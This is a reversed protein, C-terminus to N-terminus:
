QQSSKTQSTYVERYIENTKLLEEHTGVANIGGDDMVIIKDANEISSIRQAIIIKTTDPIEEAFAKRILADTKTDVASTSDDLILIKPKKLLARAICLRQKQGGSVNTGGQEIYTDYGKPFTSVFSDAQALKCVNVIEEDTANENGWRLNEKITGSFLVNKQLVVAVSDRLAEIDYDKVDLGGVTLKGKTVDYLRPILNVLSTKGSGTGGIIGVTEGSKISVSIDSLCMKDADKKYAFSVNDFIISGDKVEKVPNEGNTIDSEEDLIETIREMSARSIIIMVFIMSLMMLSMLIQMAYTILSMLQGTTMGVVPDNGSLVILRAGFWSILLMCTYVCFQMLPMNWALLREAKSFDKFISKSIKGFKENEHDERVFSKVVRIGYLNEQVVNNLKDYTKFVREFIPHAKSMIFFLGVALIPVICLFILAMSSNVNFALVLACILMIPARVAVRIIMMYANQVNTVDTTLRTVISATSFKDINSFSFNQVKYYMDKRLNKAFGASAIAASRGSLIGFILSILAFVVLVVGMKVIYELNGDDIGFDILNAMLLPIVVEMIVEFIVFVPALISHKKYERVSRLLKRVM